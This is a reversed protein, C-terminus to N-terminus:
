EDGFVESKARKASESAQAFRAADHTGSMALYASSRYLIEFSKSISTRLSGIADLAENKAENRQFERLGLKVFFETTAARSMGQAVAFSDLRAVDSEELRISIKQM